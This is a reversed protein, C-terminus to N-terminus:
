DINSIEKTKFSTQCTNNLWKIKTEINTIIESINIMTNHFQNVSKAFVILLKIILVNNLDCDNLIVWGWFLLYISSLKNAQQQSLM